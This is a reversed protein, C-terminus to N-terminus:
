ELASPVSGPGYRAVIGNRAVDPKPSAVFDGGVTWYAGTEDAWVAHLNGHPDDVFDDDWAGDVLRQKLGGMGVIAATQADVCVVGNVDNTLPQELKSWAVGDYRLVDRGGVAYVDTAGCGHVTTLNGSTLGAESELLWEDGRKHWIVGAEGVVFLEDSSTGWVKFHARGLPEGPLTIATWATGDWHLVVDDPQTAPGGVMGGVAWADDPAFAIAGWLTAKTGSDHEEFSSGDFHTIRGNEGVLWVDDDSTGHVWWFSASGGPEMDTWVDGDFRLALADFGTNGLPGGVVWVSESSTGWVSLLARDLDGEDFVVRWAPEAPAGGGEGGSGGGGPGDDDPCATLALSMSAISVLALGWRVLWM